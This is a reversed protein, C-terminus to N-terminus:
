KLKFSAAAAHGLRDIIYGINAVLLSRGFFILSYFRDFLQTLQIPKRSINKINDQEFETYNNDSNDTM